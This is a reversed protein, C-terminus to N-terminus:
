YPFGPLLPGADDGKFDLAEARAKVLFHPKQRSNRSGQGFAREAARDSSFGEPLGPGGSPQKIGIEESGTRRM